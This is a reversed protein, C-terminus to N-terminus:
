FRIGLGGDFVIYSSLSNSTTGVAATWSVNEMWASVGFDLGILRSFAWRAGFRGEYNWTLSPTSGGGISTGALDGRLMGSLLLSFNPVLRFGLEGGIGAQGRFIRNPTLSSSSAMTLANTIAFGAHVFPGGFIASGSKRYGIKISGRPSMALTGSFIQTLVAGSLTGTLGRGVGPKPGWQFDLGYVGSLGTTTLTGGFDRDTVNYSALAQAGRAIIWYETGLSIEAGGSM